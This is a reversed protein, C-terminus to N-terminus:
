YGFLDQSLDWDTTIDKRSEIECQLISKLNVRKKNMM